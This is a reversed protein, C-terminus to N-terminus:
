ETIQTCTRKWQLCIFAWAEVDDFSPLTGEMFCHKTALLRLLRALKDQNIGTGTHSAIESIHLGQPHDSLIDAVKCEM